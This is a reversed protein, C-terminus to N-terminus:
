LKIPKLNQLNNEIDSLKFLLRRGIRIPSLVNERTLKYLTPLSIKLYEATEKRTLLRDKSIKYESSNCFSKLNLKQVILTALENLNLPINVQITEM